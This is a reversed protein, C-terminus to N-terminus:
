SFLRLVRMLDDVTHYLDKESRLKATEFPVAVRNISFIASVGETYAAEICDAVDGVIAIVPINAKKARRAVGIVVKGRLSQSDIKGEGTFVLDANQLLTEFDVTDLVVEIGMQLKAGFFAVMGGGMGGAAGAGSLDAVDAKLDRKAVEAVVKLGSDLARVMDPGAGKQPGFISAAGNPGCLPNDIDCMVVIDIGRLQSSLESADIQAVDALTGGTPVFSDGQHNVFRVGAAAAAGVAFDNTASGGLGVIIKTCGNQAAHIMMQGVGYTTTKNPELKKGVLPLGACVAIEIVATKGDNVLGYFATMPEGFPGQVELYVKEGYLADLLADVTGEGGDAVPVTVVESQPYYALTREKIVQCIQHSSLTGKFSDPIVIVKKM